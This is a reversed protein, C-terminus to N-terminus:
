MHGSGRSRVVCDMCVGICRVSGSSVGELDCLAYEDLSALSFCPGARMHVFHWDGSVIVCKNPPHLYVACSLVLRWLLLDRSWSWSTCFDFPPRQGMGRTSKPCVGIEYKALRFASISLVGRV